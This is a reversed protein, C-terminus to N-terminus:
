PVIIVRSISTTAPQEIEEGFHGQKEQGSGGYSVLIDKEQSSPTDADGPSIIDDPPLTM